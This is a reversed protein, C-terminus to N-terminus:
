CNGREFDLAFTYMSYEISVPFFVGGVVILTIM